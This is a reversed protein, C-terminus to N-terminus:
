HNCGGAQQAHHDVREQFSQNDHVILSIGDQGSGGEVLGAQHANSEGGYVCATGVQAQGDFGQADSFQAMARGTSALVVAAGFVVCAVLRTSYGIRSM